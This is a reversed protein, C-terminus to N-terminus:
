MLRLEFARTNACILIPHLPLSKKKYVCARAHKKGKRILFTLKKAKKQGFHAAFELFLQIKAGCIL